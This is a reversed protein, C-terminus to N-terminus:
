IRKQALEKVRKAVNDGLEVLKPLGEVLSQAKERGMAVQWCDITFFRAYAALPLVELETEHLKINESYGKMAADVLVMKGRGAAAGLLFGLSVIRYGVGAGTWDVVTWKTPVGDATSTPEEIVNVPVFDPHVICKPLKKNRFSSALKQLGTILQTFHDDNSASDGELHTSQVQLDRLLKIAAECEDDMGGNISLHHWAGGTPMGEEPHLAHLRGLLKGLRYFTVRNREPRQGQIFHTVLVCATEDNTKALPPSVLKEAPYKSSQLFKLLGALSEIATEDKTPYLRAVWSKGDALDVRHVNWDLKSIDKVKVSYTGELHSSLQDSSLLEKLM